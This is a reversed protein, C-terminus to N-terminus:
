ENDRKSFAYDELTNDTNFIFMARDYSTVEKNNNYVLLIIGEGSVEERMYYFITKDGLNMVQSPPGLKALVESATTQGKVFKPNDRWLNEVGSERNYNVCGSILTLVLISTVLYVLRKIM